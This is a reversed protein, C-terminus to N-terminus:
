NEDKIANAEKNKFLIIDAARFVTYIFLALLVINEYRTSYSPFIDLASGIISSISCVGLSLLASFLSFCYLRPKTYGCIVRLESIAFLSAGICGFHFILKLPSNMAVGFDLYSKIWSIIIWIFFGISSFVTINQTRKASFVSIFFVISALASIIWLFNWIGFDKASLKMLQVFLSIAHASIAAAPIIAAMKSFRSPSPIHEDKKVFFSVAFFFVVSVAILVACIQPLIAKTEFYGADSDYFFLVSITYLVTSVVSLLLAIASFLRYNKKETRAKNSFDM